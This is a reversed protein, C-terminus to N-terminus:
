STSADIEDLVAHVYEVIEDSSMAAGQALWDASRPDADMADHLPGHVGPAGFLPDPLYGGIVAGHEVMGRAGLHLALCLLVVPLECESVHAAEVAWRYSEPRIPGDEVANAHAEAVAALVEMIRHGAVKAMEHSRRFEQRADAFRGQHLAEQGRAAIAWIALSPNDSEAALQETVSRGFSVWRADGSATAYQGCLSRQLRDGSNHSAADWGSYVEDRLAGETDFVIAAAALAHWSWCTIPHSRTPAADIGARGLLMCDEYRGARAAWWGAMGTVAPSPAEGLREALELVELAWQEHEHHITIGGFWSTAEVLRTAAALDDTTFAWGIAVRINDWENDFLANGEWWGSGTYLQDAREAVAVYHDRHRGRTAEVEGREDLRSEAYQRLTELLQFRTGREAPEAVVLSRDVLRELVDIVSAADVPGGACVVEVSDLDFGGAFVSLRDFLAREDDDLLRYSWDIAATLTQHRELGRRRGGRLLRFRDDLGALLEAPALTRVRAAALEIALPLGDLRRSIEVVAPDGPAYSRHAASARADFLEAGATDPDLSPVSWVREGACRLPERSTALIVVDGCGALVADVLDAAQDLVHECNDVVLLARKSRYAEVIAEATSRGPQSLLGLAEAVTAPVAAPDDVPGLECWWRGDPFRDGLDAAVELALRTKGTGGVGTLTVLRSSRLLGELEGLEDGRGVFSTPSSPLNGDVVETAQLPPFEDDLDDAVVQWLQETRAVGRLRHPGLDRLEVGEPLHDESVQRTSEAVLVQGGHAAGMVRAARNVVLGFYDGDREHAEGTCLGMRVRLVGPAPWEASALRRQAEIAASLAHDARAFSAAFSDGATSFVYGGHEDIVGGVVEDHRALAAEMVSADAEWAETSGEVDTFLFTVTGTPVGRGPREDELVRREAERLAASPEIGLEEALAGRARAFAALADSRRGALRLGDVLLVWASERLPMEAVLAELEGIVEAARGAALDVAAVRERALVGLEGLRAVVPAAPEWDALEQFPDGRWSALAARLRETDESAVAEALEVSDVAGQRAVLRYGDGDRQIDVELLGRLRSLSRQLTRVASAPPREGWVAEVLGATSVAQGPTTLLAALL